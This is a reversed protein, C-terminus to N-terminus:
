RQMFHVFGNNRETYASILRKSRLGKTPFDTLTLFVHTNENKIVYWFLLWDSPNPSLLVDVLIYNLNYLIVLPCVSQVFVCSLIPNHFCMLSVSDVGLANSLCLHLKARRQSICDSQTM